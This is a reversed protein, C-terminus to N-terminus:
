KLESIIDLGLSEYQQRTKEMRNSYEMDNEYICGKSAINSIIKYHPTRNIHIGLVRNGSGAMLPTPYDDPKWGAAAKIDINRLVLRMVAMVRAAEWTSCQPHDKMPITKFPYFKSIYVSKLHQYQKVHFIFDVYDKYQTEKPDLGAMLGTILGLGAEGIEKAFKNKQEFNDGRKVKKFWDQNVTEFVAGVRTVGLKKLKKLTELSMAAGCNIEIEMDNYGSDRIAQVIELIDKGDSGLITGGSLHFEKIGHKSIYEVGKIIEETSLPDLTDDKRWYPCYDCLPKLQCKVVRAIGSTWHYINGLEKERVKVATGFLKMAKEEIESKEILFLAEDKTIVETESKKLIEEFNMNM